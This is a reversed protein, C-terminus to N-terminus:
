SYIIYLVLICPLYIEDFAIITGQELIPSLQIKNISELMSWWHSYYFMGSIYVKHIHCLFSSEILALFENENTYEAFLNLRITRNNYQGTVLYHYVEQESTIQQQQEELRHSYTDFEYESNLFWPHPDSQSYFLEDLEEISLEDEYM